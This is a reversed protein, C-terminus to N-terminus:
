MRVLIQQRNEQISVSWGNQSPYSSIEINKNENGQDSFLNLM